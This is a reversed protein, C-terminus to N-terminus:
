PADYEVSAERAIVYQMGGVQRVVGKLEMLTLTSSVLAAPLTSLRSLEDVHLPTSVLHPLLAAEEASDPLALQVARQEVVRDLQLDELVDQANMVLKAGSQILRNTGISTKSTANGPVAYVDRGQDRAFDATILAGSREGAEIVVTGLSLASIIRNRPPFNKAEPKVGLAYESIIAGNGDLIRAALNRNEPPYICDIGSGLVAITRGGNDVTVSHAISDVGRALGSVVTIAAHAFATALKATMQRGYASVRRTGVIALAWRDADTIDGKVYITPPSVPINRLSTPYEASDWCLLRVGMKELQAMQSDLDVEARTKFFSKITREDFGIRKLESRDSHWAAEVSGFHDLLARVKAAGVGKAMNFGLWYKLDTMM